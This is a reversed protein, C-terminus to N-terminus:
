QATWPWELDGSETAISFGCTRSKGDTLLLLKIDHTAGNGIYQM